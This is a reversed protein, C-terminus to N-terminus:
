AGAEELAQAHENNHNTSVLVWEHALGGENFHRADLADLLSVLRQHAQRFSAEVQEFTQGQAQALAGANFETTDYDKSGAGALLAPIRQSGEVEWAALHAVVEWAGWGDPLVVGRAFADQAARLVRNYAQEFDQLMQQKM